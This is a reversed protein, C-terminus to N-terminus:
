PRSCRERDDSRRARVGSGSFPRFDTFSKFTRANTTIKSIPSDQTDGMALAARPFLNAFVSHASNGSDKVIRPLIRGIARQDLAHGADDGM